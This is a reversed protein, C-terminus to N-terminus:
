SAVCLLLALSYLEGFSVFWVLVAENQWRDILEPLIDQAPFHSGALHTAATVPSLCEATEATTRPEWNGWSCACPCRLRQPQWGAAAAISLERIHWCMCVCVCAFTPRLCGMELRESRSERTGGAALKTEGSVLTEKEGSLCHGGAGLRLAPATGSVGQVSSLATQRSFHSSTPNLWLGPHVVRTVCLACGPLHVSWGM